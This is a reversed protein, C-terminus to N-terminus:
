QSVKGGLLRRRRLLHHYRGAFRHAEDRVFQCVRLAGSRRPLLIGDPHAPTFLREERKALAVLCVGSGGASEVADVAASYQGKGGDVLLVQPIWDDGEAARRFRRSLVERIMAYDDTGSVTKIRYRRYRDKFPIGDEFAVVAGVADQGQLLAIDVGEIRRLPHMLGLLERLEELGDSPTLPGVLDDPRDSFRGRKDLSELARIQDRLAAAGEYDLRESAGAMHRKLDALLGAKDGALVRKLGEMQEQYAEQSVLDACPATCRRIHYLLCPRVHRRKSDGARIDLNCTRFQFAGQLVQLSRRLGGVDMFPGYGRHGKRPTDRTIEVRPFDESESLMLWPYSKDDKLMVNYRPKLDKVLRSELLLADVESAAEITELDAALALMRRTKEEVPEGSFYSRVRDRLSRAKGVYLTRGKADKFLYVGPKEPLASAAEKLGRTHM